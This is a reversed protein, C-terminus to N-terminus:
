RGKTPAEDVFDQVIVPSAHICLMELNETGCNRFRHRTEAPVTVIQGAEAHRREDETEVLVEGRLVVWTETYPHWHLDPGTGPAADVWFLSVDAGQEAGVFRATAAGPKRLLTRSTVTIVHAQ